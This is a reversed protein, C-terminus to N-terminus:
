HQRQVIPMLRPDVTVTVGAKVNLVRVLKIVERAAIKINTQRIVALFVNMQYILILRFYHKQLRRHHTFRELQSFFSFPFMIFVRAIKNHKALQALM